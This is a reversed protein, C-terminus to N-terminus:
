SSSGPPSTAAVPKEAKISTGVASGCQVPRQAVSFEVVYRVAADNDATKTVCTLRSAAAISPLAKGLTSIELLDDVNSLQSLQSTAYREFAVEVQDPPIGAGDDTM